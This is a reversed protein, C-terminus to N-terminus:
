LDSLICDVSTPFPPIEWLNPYLLELAEKVFAGMGCCSDEKYDKETAPRKGHAGLSENRRNLADLLSQRRPEFFERIKPDGVAVALEWARWLPIKAPTEDSIERKWSVSDPIQDKLVKATDIQHTHGLYTQATLEVARYHRAIADEYRGQKARRSANELVDRALLYAEPSWKDSSSAKKLCNITPMYKKCIVGGVFEFYKAADNYDFRDWADFARLVNLFKRTEAPTDKDAIFKALLDVAAGYHYNELLLNVKERTRHWQISSVKASTIYEGGVVKNLDKRPGTVLRIKVSGDDIAAMAIAVSMSKSGGTYDCSIEAGPDEEKIKTIAKLIKEYADSIDDVDVKLVEYQEKSLEAQIPISPLDPQQGPTSSCVKGEGLVQTYSGKTGNTDDSCVFVVRDPRETKIATIIPQCSGGVTTILWKM